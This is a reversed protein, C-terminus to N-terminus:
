FISGMFYSDRRSARRSKNSPRDSSDFDLFLPCNESYNYIKIPNASIRKLIGKAEYTRLSHLYNLTHLLILRIDKDRTLICGKKDEVSSLYLSLAVIKEDTYLYPYKKSNRKRLHDERSSTEESSQLVLKELARCETQKFRPSSRARLYSDHYLDRIKHLLVEQKSKHYRGNGGHSDESELFCIKERVIERARKIEKSVEKLSIVKEYTLIESFSSLSKTVRQLVCLDLQSFRDTEYIQNRCWSNESVSISTDCIVYDELELVNRISPSLNTGISIDDM